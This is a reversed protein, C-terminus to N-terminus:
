LEGLLGKLYDRIKCYQSVEIQPYKSDYLNFCEFLDYQRSAKFGNEMATVLLNYGQNSFQISAYHDTEMHVRHVLKVLELVDNIKIYGLEKM